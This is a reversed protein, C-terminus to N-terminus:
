SRAPCRPCGGFGEQRVTKYGRVVGSASKSFIGGVGRGVGKVGGWVRGVLGRSEGDNGAGGVSKIDAGVPPELEAAVPVPGWQSVSAFVEADDGRALVAQARLDDLVVSAEGDLVEPRVIKGTDEDVVARTYWRVCLTADGKTRSRCRSRRAASCAGGGPLAKVRAESQNKDVLLDAVPWRVQLGVGGPNM